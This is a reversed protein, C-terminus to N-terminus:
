PTVDEELISSFCQGGVGKGSQMGENEIEGSHDDALGDYVKVTKEFYMM